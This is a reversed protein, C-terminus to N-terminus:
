IGYENGIVLNRIMIHNDKLIGKIKADLEKPFKYVISDTMDEAGEIDSKAADEAVYNLDKYTFFSTQSKILESNIEVDNDVAYLIISDVTVDDLFAEGGEPPNMYDGSIYPSHHASFSYEVTVEYTDHEINRGSNEDPIVFIEITSSGHEEDDITYSRNTSKAPILSVKEKHNVNCYSFLILYAIESPELLHLWHIAHPYVYKM